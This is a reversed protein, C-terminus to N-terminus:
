EVTIIGDPTTMASTIYESYFFLTDGSIATEPITITGYSDHIIPNSSFLGTDDFSGEASEALIRHLTLDQNHFFVTEGVAATIEQPIFQNDTIIITLDGPAPTEETITGCAAMLLLLFFNLGRM